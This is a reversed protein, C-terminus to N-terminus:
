PTAEYPYGWAGLIAAGLANLLCFIGVASDLLGLATPGGFAALTLSYASLALFALAYIRFNRQLGPSM